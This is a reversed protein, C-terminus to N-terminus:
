QTQQDSCLVVYVSLCTAPVYYTIALAELTVGSSCPEGPLDRCDHPVLSARHNSVLIHRLSRPRKAVTHSEPSAELYNASAFWVIWAVSRELNDQISPGKPREDGLRDGLGM